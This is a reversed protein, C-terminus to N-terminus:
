MKREGFWRMLLQRVHHTHRETLLSVAWAFLYLFATISAFMLYSTLSSPSMSLGIGWLASAMACLLLLLPFHLLYLSYSFGAMMAHLRSPAAAGDDKQCHMWTLLLNALALAVLMDTAFAMKASFHWHSLRVGAVVAVLLLLASLWNWPVMSRPVCRIGAGMAWILGYLLIMPYILAAVAMGVVLLLLRMRWSKWSMFPALLLPFLVYYWFENALSWLPANSGLAPSAITQLDCLNEALISWSLNEDVRYQLPALIHPWGQSYVQQANFWRIGITDFAYGILLAPVLVVYLRTIRNVLYSTLSFQGKRLGNVVSGGVLFGSLVFFVIVSQHGLGTLQYFAAAALTKEEEPVHPWDLFLLNRVHSVVVLAAAVWRACDLNSSLRGDLRDYFYL